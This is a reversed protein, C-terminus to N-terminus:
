IWHPLDIESEDVELMDREVHHLRAVYKPLDGARADGSFADVAARFRELLLEHSVLERSIMADIDSRDNGNFRKLKSVVVDVVDLAVVELRELVGNLAPVPHWLPEDPLFPLGSPM